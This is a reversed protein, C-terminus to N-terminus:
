EEKKSMNQPLNDDLKFRNLIDLVTYLQQQKWESRAKDDGFLLRKDHYELKEVALLQEVLGKLRDRM